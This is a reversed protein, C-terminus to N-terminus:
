NKTFYSKLKKNNCNYLRKIIMDIYKEEKEYLICNRNLNYCGEGTTGSGAFCDLVLDKENSGIKILEEILKLPKETPHGYKSSVLNYRKVKSKLKSDGKFVAGKERIHIIFEIDNRWVGNSFPPANYKNWLILTTFYNNDEGWKMISSIQKNSCFCFLNFKKTIRKFENFVLNINFSNTINKYDDTLYKDMKNISSKKVSCTSSDLDYPPDIIILDISNDLIDKMLTICDGKKFDINM